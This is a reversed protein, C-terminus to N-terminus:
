GTHGQPHRSRGLGIVFTRVEKQKDTYNGTLPTRAADQLANVHLMEARLSGSQTLTFTVAEVNENVTVSGPALSCTLMSIIIGFESETPRWLRSFKVLSGIVMSNIVARASSGDGLVVGECPAANGHAECLGM